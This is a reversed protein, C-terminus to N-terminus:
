KKIAKEVLSKRIKLVRSLQRISTDIDEYIMKITALVEDKNSIQSMDNIKYCNTIRNKLENDSYGKKEEIELCNSTEKDNMYRIFSNMNPFYERLLEKDIFTSSGKFSEIFNNYSSWKYDSLNKVMNAKLPNQHIYRLVTLLYGESNVPESRFRGQFLPGIRGYKRNHWGVYSVGIRKISDGIPENEEMLLHIHNKMLCYGYLKFEGAEKANILSNIFQENDEDDLLICRKDIGRMMVHYIGTESKERNMRPM